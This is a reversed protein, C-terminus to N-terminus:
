EDVWASSQYVQYKDQSADDSDVELNIRDGEEWTYYQKQNELISPLTDNKYDIAANTYNSGEEEPDITKLLEYSKIKLSKNLVLLAAENFYTNYDGSIVQILDRFISDKNNINDERNNWLFIKLQIGNGNYETIKIHGYANVFVTNTKPHTFNPIIIAM